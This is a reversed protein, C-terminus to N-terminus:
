LDVIVSFAGRLDGEGYGLARDDPYREELLSKLDDQMLAPDGHCALCPQMVIIPKMYRLVQRGDVLVVEASEAPLDGASPLANWRELLAREYGDPSDAPNRVKMSVRRILLGEGSHEAGVAPAIESCVRVAEVPGGSELNELLAGMLDSGMAGVAGRARELADTPVESTAGAAAEDQKTVTGCGVACGLVLLAIITERGM